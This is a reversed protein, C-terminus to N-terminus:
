LPSNTQGFSDDISANRELGTVFVRVASVLALNSESM